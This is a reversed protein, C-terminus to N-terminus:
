AAAELHRWGRIRAPSGYAIAGAPIDRNVLSDAGIIAGEGITVGQLIRAGAGIWVNDAISVPAVNIGQNNIPISTDDHNHSVTNIMVQGAILVDSGITVGGNGYVQSGAGLWSRDGLRIHSGNTNLLCFDQIFVGNGLTIGNDGNGRLVSCHAIRVADGVHINSPCDFRVTADIDPSNGLRALRLSLLAHLLRRCSKKMERYLYRM